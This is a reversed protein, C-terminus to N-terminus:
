RATQVVRISYESGDITKNAVLIHNPGFMLYNEFGKKAQKQHWSPM